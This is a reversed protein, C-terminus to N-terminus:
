FGFFFCLRNKNTMWFSIRLIHEFAQHWVLSECHHTKRWGQLWGQLGQCSEADAWRTAESGSDTEDTEEQFFRRDRLMGGMTFVNCSCIEDTGTNFQCFQAELRKRAIMSMAAAWDRSCEFWIVGHQIRLNQSDSLADFFHRMWWHEFTPLCVLTWCRLQVEFFQM